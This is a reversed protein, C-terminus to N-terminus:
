CLMIKNFILILIGFLHFVFAAQIIPSQEQFFIGQHIIKSIFGLILMRVGMMSLTIYGMRMMIVVPAAFYRGRYKIVVSVSNIKNAM